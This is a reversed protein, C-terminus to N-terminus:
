QVVVRLSSGLTQDTKVVRILINGADLTYEQRMKIVPNAKKDDGEICGSITAGPMVDNEVTYETLDTKLFTWDVVNTTFLVAKGGGAKVALYTTDATLFVKYAPTAGQSIYLTDKFLSDVLQAAIDSFASDQWSSNIDPPQVTSINTFVSDAFLDCVTKDPEGISQESSSYLDCSSLALTIAMIMGVLPFTKRGFVQKM